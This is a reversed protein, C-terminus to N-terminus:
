RGAHVDSRPPLPHDARLVPSPAPRPRLPRSAGLPPSACILPLRGLLGQQNLKRLMKFGSIQLAPRSGDPVRAPLRPSLGEICRCSPVLSHAGDPARPRRPHSRFRERFHRRRQERRQECLLPAVTRPPAARGEQQGGVHGAVTRTTDAASAPGPARHASCLPAVSSLCVTMVDVRFASPRARYGSSLLINEVLGKTEQQKEVLLIHISREELPAPPPSLLLVSGEGEM